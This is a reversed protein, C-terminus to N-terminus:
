FSFGFDLTFIGINEGGMIYANYETRNGIPQISVEYTDVALLGYGLGFYLARNNNLAKSMGFSVSFMGTNPKMQYPYILSDSNINLNIEYPFSILTGVSASIYPTWKTKLLNVRLNLFVPINVLSPSACINYHTNEHSISGQTYYSSRIDYIYTGDVFRLDFGTGLGLFWRQNFRYGGIYNIGALNYGGFKGSLNVYQEYGKARNVHEKASEKYATVKASAEKLSEREIAEAKAKEKAVRAAEEKAIREAEVKAKAVRAAEAAAMREAEVKAKAEAKERAAREAEAKAIREAESKAKAVREAEEKAIREAEAKAKAVREAEAAAIREAEAKAKTEAYKKDVKLRLIIMSGDIEAKGSIYGEHTAVVQKAYPSVRIEFAGGQASVAIVSEGTATITAGVLGMGDEDQVFGKVVRLNQAIGISSILLLMLPLVIRKM